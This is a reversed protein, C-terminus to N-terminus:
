PTLVWIEVNSRPIWRHISLGLAFVTPSGPLNDVQNAGIVTILQNGVLRVIPIAHTESHVWQGGVFQIWCWFGARQWDAPLTAPLVLRFGYGTASAEIGVGAFQWRESNDAAL